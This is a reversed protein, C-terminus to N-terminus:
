CRSEQFDLLLRPKLVTPSPLGFVKSFQFVLREIVEEMPPSFGLIEYMSVAKRDRLGCAHILAFHEMCPNVNLAFGHMTVGQRVSLGVAGIKNRGIWVGVHQPDRGAHVSFDQLARIMVEELAHVYRKLDGGRERLDLIPYGVVQGPGHYTVDGGRDVFYLSVGMQELTQPTVLINELNGAKGVTITPPHELLLLTDGVAGEVRREHIEKQLRYAAGYDVTGLRKVM